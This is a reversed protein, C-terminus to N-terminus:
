VYHEESAYREARIEALDRRRREDWEALGLFQEIRRITPLHGVDTISIRDAPDLWGVIVLEAIRELLEEDSVGPPAVLNTGNRQLTWRGEVGRDAVVHAPM